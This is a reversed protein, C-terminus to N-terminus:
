LLSKRHQETAGLASRWAKAWGADADLSTGNGREILTNKVGGQIKSDTYGGLFSSVSYGPFWGSLHSLHRHQPVTDTLHSDAVKWEKIQGNNTYHVGKDLQSM